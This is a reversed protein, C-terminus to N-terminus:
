AAGKLVVASVATSLLLMRLAERLPPRVEPPAQTRAGRKLSATKTPSALFYSLLSECRIEEGEVLELEGFLDELEEVSPRYLTDIPGPHYPYRRPVTVFAYGGPPVLSEIAGALQARNPVHELVNCCMLSRPALSRLGALFQPDTLDGAVDVGPADELEHHLVEVGRQALPEYIREELWPQTARLEAHGSGVSLLPSLRETPIAELRRALWAAESRLV